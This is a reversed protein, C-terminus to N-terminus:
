RASGLPADQEAADIITNRVEKNPHQGVELPTKGDLSENPTHFWLIIDLDSVQPNSTRFCLICSAINRYLTNTGSFRQFTPYFNVDGYVISLPRVNDLSEHEHNPMPRLTTLETKVNIPESSIGVFELKMAVKKM